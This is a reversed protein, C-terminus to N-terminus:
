CRCYKCQHRADVQGDLEGERGTVFKEGHTDGWHWIKRSRSSGSQIIRGRFSPKWLAKVQVQRVYAIKTRSFLRRMRGGNHEKRKLLAWINSLTSRRGVKISRWRERKLRRSRQRRVQYASGQWFVDRRASRVCDKSSSNKYQALPAAPSAPPVYTVNALAPSTPASPM